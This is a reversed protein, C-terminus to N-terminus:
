DMLIIIYGKNSDFERGISCRLGYENVVSIVIEKMKTSNGTIVEIECPKDWHQEIVRIISAEAESHKMRHLDLKTM